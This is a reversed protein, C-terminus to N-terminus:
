DDALFSNRDERHEDEGPGDGAVDIAMTAPLHGLRYDAACVPRPDNLRRALDRALDESCPRLSYIADSNYYETLPGDQFPIDIRLLTAGYMEVERVEGARQRHGMLELVAWGQYSETEVRNAEM